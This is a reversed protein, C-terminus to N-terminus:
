LTHLKEMANEHILVKLHEAFYEEMGLLYDAQQGYESIRNCIRNFIAASTDGKKLILFYTNEDPNKYLSSLGTFDESVSQVARIVSELDRFLYFRTLLYVADKEAEAAPATVPKEQSVKPEAPSAASSADTHASKKAKSLKSILDLIDDAGSLMSSLDASRQGGGDEPSFRSFRSDLEEPDDVKTIILIMSDASVPVAEIMLPTNDPQFGCDRMAQQMMEHFLEKAKPSGYALESIRIQRSALDERTLTCRIQNDNIKEIKM